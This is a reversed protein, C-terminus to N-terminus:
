KTNNVMQELESVRNELTSIRDNNNNPSDCLNKLEIINFMHLDCMGIGIIFLFIIPILTGALLLIVSKSIM